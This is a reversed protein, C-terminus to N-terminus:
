KKSTLVPAPQNTINFKDSSGSNQNLLYKQQQHSIISLRDIILPEFKNNPKIININSQKSDICSRDSKRRRKSMKNQSQSSKNEEDILQDITFPNKLKPSSMEYKTM